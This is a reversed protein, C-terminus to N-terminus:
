INFKPIPKKDLLGYGVTLEIAQRVFSSQSMGNKESSKRVAEDHYKGIRYTRNFLIEKKMDLKGIGNIFIRTIIVWM